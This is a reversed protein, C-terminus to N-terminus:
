FSVAPACQTQPRPCPQRPHVGSPAASRVKTQRVVCDVLGTIREGMSAGLSLARAASATAANLAASGGACSALLLDRPAFPDNMITAALVPAARRASPLSSLEVQVTRMRELLANRRAELLACHRSAATPSSGSRSVESPLHGLLRGASYQAASLDREVVGCEAQSMAPPPSTCATALM